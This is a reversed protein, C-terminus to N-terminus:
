PKLQKLELATKLYFADLGIFFDIQCFFFNQLNPSFSSAEIISNTQNVLDLALAEKQAVLSNFAALDGQSAQLAISQIVAFRAQIVSRQNQSLALNLTTPFISGKLLGQVMEELTDIKKNITINLAAKKSADSESAAQQQLERIEQLEQSILVRQLNYERYLEDILYLDQYEFYSQVSSSLSNSVSASTVQNILQTLSDIIQRNLEKKQALPKSELYLQSEQKQLKKITDIRSDLSVISSELSNLFTTLAPTYIDNQNVTYTAILTNISQLFTAYLSTSPLLAKTQELTALFIQTQFIRKKLLDLAHITYIATESPSVDRLQNTNQLEGNIQGLSYTYYNIQEQFDEFDKTKTAIYEGATSTLRPVMKVLYRYFYTGESLRELGCAPLFFDFKLTKAGKDNSDVILLTDNFLDRSLFITNQTFWIPLPRMYKLFEAFVIPNRNQNIANSEDQSRNPNTAILQQNHMNNEILVSPLKLYTPSSLSIDINQNIGFLQMEYGQNTALASTNPNFTLELPVFVGGNQLVDSIKVEVFKSELLINALQQEQIASLEEPSQVPSYLRVFIENENGTDSIIKVVHVLLSRVVDNSITSNFAMPDRVSELVDLTEDAFLSLLIVLTVFLRQM